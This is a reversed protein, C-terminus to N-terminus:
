AAFTADAALLSKDALAYETDIVAEGSLIQSQRLRTLMEADMLGLKDLFTVVNFSDTHEIIRGDKDLRLIEHGHHTIKRGTGERGLLKGRHTGTMEWRLFVMDGEAITYEEKFHVDPFQSRFIEVQMQVGRRNPSSRIGPTYDRLDPHIAEDILRLNGTNFAELVRRVSAKNRDRIKDTNPGRPGSPGAM